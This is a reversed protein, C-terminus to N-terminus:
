RAKGTCEEGDVHQPLRKFCSNGEEALTEFATPDDLEPEYMLASPVAKKYMELIQIDSHKPNRRTLEDIMRMAGKSVRTSTVEDCAASHEVM